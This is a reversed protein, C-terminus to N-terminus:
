AVLSEVFARAKKAQELIRPREGASLTEVVLPGGTFGGKKLKGLVAGFDVMGTGPTLDVDKKPKMAFDKICWGSVLGDVEAADDVPSIKGESYYYINGADYWIRFNKNNVREVAKRLQAGTGNTGGHPKIVLGVDKAAAEDCCKAITAYYPGVFKENGVGGLLISKAGAAACLDILHRLETVGGDASKGISLDGGWATAIGLGRQKAEEGVRHADDVMTEESLIHKSKSNTTMLGVHKFGAAAIEDFAVRYDFAAWPRTFCGIQWADGAAAKATGMLASAALAAAGVQGSRSIFERRNLQTESM